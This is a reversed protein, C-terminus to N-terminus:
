VAGENTGLTGVPIHVFVIQLLVQFELASYLRLKLAGIAVLSALQFSIQHRMNRKLM